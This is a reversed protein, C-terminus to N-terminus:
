EELWIKEKLKHLKNEYEIFCEGCMWKKQVGNGFTTIARNGCEESKKIMQCKPFNNETIQM